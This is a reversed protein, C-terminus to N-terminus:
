PLTVSVGDNVCSLRVLISTNVTKTVGRVSGDGLLINFVGPHTSGLAYASFAHRNAGPPDSGGISPPGSGFDPENPIVKGNFSHNSNQVVQANMFGFNQMGTTVPASAETGGAVGGLYSCDRQFRALAPYSANRECEGMRSVPIHRDGFILINSSGDQWWSLDDRPAWRVLRDSDSPHMTAVSVRFPGAHRGAAGQAMSNWWQGGNSISTGTTYVLAIYDSLPGPNFHSDNM